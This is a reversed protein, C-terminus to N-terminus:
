YEFAERHFDITAKSLCSSLAVANAASANLSSPGCVAWNCFIKM